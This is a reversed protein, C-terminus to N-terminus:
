GKLSLTSEYILGLTYNALKTLTGEQKFIAPFISDLGNIIKFVDLLDARVRRTELTTIKLIRLRSPYDLHRLEPIIRSMRRQISELLDIDKQKYPRWAQICYDLHPRVLSKYLKLVVEKTKYTFARSVMGLMANAKHAAKICQKNVDLTETIIVGIDREECATEICVNGIFYDYKKNNFGYHICKCKQANFLM